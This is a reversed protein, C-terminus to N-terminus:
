QFCHRGSREHLSLEKDYDDLLIDISGVCRGMREIATPTKNSGLTLVAEKCLRNFHELLLDCPINKGPIGHTNVTRSWLLQMSQRQTLFFHYQSLLNIAEISYNKRKRAKFILLLYRWCRLIRDDKNM